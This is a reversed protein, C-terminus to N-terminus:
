MIPSQVISLALANNGNFSRWVFEFGGQLSSSDEGGTDRDKHPGRLWNLALRLLRSHALTLHARIAQLQAPITGTCCPDASFHAVSGCQWVAYRSVEVINTSASIHLELVIIYM